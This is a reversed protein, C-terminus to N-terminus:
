VGTCFVHALLQFFCYFTVHDYINHTLQPMQRQRVQHSCTRMLPMCSFLLQVVHCGLVILMLSTQVAHLCEHSLRMDIATMYFICASAQCATHCVQAALDQTPLVVLAALRSQARSCRCISAAKNVSSMHSQARGVLRM